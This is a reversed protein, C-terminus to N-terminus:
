LGCASSFTGIDTDSSPQQAVKELQIDSFTSQLIQPKSSYM